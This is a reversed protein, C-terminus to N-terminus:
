NPGRLFFNVLKAQLQRKLPSLHKMESIRNLSDEVELIVPVVEHGKFYKKEGAEVLSDGFLLRLRNYLAADCSMIWLKHHKRISYRWMERYLMLTVITKEGPQKVLGSVEAIDEPVTGDILAKANENLKQHRYTQFSQHGQAPDCLILRSVAVTRPKSGNTREVAFYKAHSQYPDEAGGIELGHNTLDSEKVFGHSLFVKAHLKKAEQLQGANDVEIVHLEAPEHGLDRILALNRTLKTLM